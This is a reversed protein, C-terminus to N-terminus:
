INQHGRFSCRMQRIFSDEAKYLLPMLFIVEDTEKHTNHISGQAASIITFVNVKNAVVIWIGDPSWAMNLPGDPVAITHIAKGETSVKLSPHLQFLSCKRRIDWIRLTKDDAVTALQSCKSYADACESQRIELGESERSARSGMGSQRYERYPRQAVFLEQRRATM